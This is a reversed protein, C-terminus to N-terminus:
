KSIDFKDCGFNKKRTKKVIKETAVLVSDNGPASTNFSALLRNVIAQNENARDQTLHGPDSSTLHNLLLILQNKELEEFLQRGM